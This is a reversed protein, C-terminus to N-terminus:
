RRAPTIKYFASAHPGVSFTKRDVASGADKGAWLDRVACNGSLGLSSWDVAIQEDKDDGLNFVALYKANSGPLEAM